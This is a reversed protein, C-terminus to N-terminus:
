LYLRWVSSLFFKNQSGQTKRPPVVSKKEFCQVISVHKGDFLQWPRQHWSDQLMVVQKLVNWHCHLSNPSTCYCWTKTGPTAMTVCVQTSNFSNLYVHSQHKTTHSHTHTHACTHPTFHWWTKSRNHESNWMWSSVRKNALNCHKLSYLSNGKQALGIMQLWQWTKIRYVISNM